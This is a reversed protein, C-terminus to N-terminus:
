PNFTLVAANSQGKPRGGQAVAYEKQLFAKHHGNLADAADGEVSTYPTCWRRGEPRKKKDWIPTLVANFVMNNFQNEHIQLTHTVPIYFENMVNRYIRSLVATVFHPYKQPLLDWVCM